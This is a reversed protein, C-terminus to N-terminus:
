RKFRRELDKKEIIISVPRGHPCYRVRGSMVERAIVSLEEEASEWGGKIAAKCSMTHLLEDHMADPDATGNAILKDALEALTEGLLGPAIDYPAATVRLMGAGFDELAFGFEELTASYELLAAAQEPSPQVTVPELLQQSMPRYGAAKMRDFNMREHAAHKDIFILNDGQEVIIYTHFAEGRLLYDPETEEVPIPSTADTETETLVAQAWDLVTASESQPEEQSPASPKVEQPTETAPNQVQAQQPPAPQPARPPAIQGSRLPSTPPQVYPRPRTASVLPDRVLGTGSRYQAATMTQFGLQNGTVRDEVPPKMPAAGAHLGSQNIASEVGHHVLSFMARDDAFKVEVKTPHVNCDVANSRTTLYLVFAPFKGVMKQNQYAQEVAATLSRSKIYRGNLFFFQHSRSNRCCVPKSVFGSVAIGGEASHQVPTMALSFDHGLVALLTHESNGDGPTLLEQKGDRLFKVSLEPHSLAIRQATQLCAAGEYSDKKMFKRRAPTNYFLQRVIFTSGDPAGDEGSDLVEGGELYVHYGLADEARKTLLELKSVASIAALAEGRFGLTGIAELDDESRIKSTAHRLFATVADDPSMGGGDDTVTITDMGGGTISVTIKHAGADIANEMLEKVVSAPREVVEGAAILDALHPELVHIKSMISEKQERLM